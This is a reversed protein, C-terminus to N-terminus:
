TRATLVGHLLTGVITRCTVICLIGAVIAATDHAEASEEDRM